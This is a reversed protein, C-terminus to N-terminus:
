AYASVDVLLHTDGYVSFCVYGDASLPALVSNPVTQGGAFNLNSADPVSTSASACPYVTVFGYGDKDKGEVVTVNMAVAGIGTSPLGSAVGKVTTAGAVKLRLVSVGSTSSSGFRGGSVRTDVLRKPSDLAIISFAPEITLSARYGSGSTTGLASISHSGSTVNTPITVPISIAGQANAQVTNLVQPTSQLTIVVWELPDFGSATLTFTQGPEPTDDPVQLTEPLADLVAASPPAFDDPDTAAVGVIKKIWDSGSFYLSGDTSFAMHGVYYYDGNVTMPSFQGDFSLKLINGDYYDSIYLNGGRDVTMGSVSFCISKAGGSNTPANDPYESCGAVTEAIIEQNGSQGSIKVIKCSDNYVCWYGRPAWYVTGDHGVALAGDGKVLGTDTSCNATGSLTTTVGAPTRKMVRCEGNPIYYANGRADYGVSEPDFPVQSNLEDTITGTSSVTRRAHVYDVGTGYNGYMEVGDGSGSRTVVTNAWGVNLLTETANQELEVSIDTVLSDDGAIGFNILYYDVLVDGLGSITSIVGASSVQRVINWQYEFPDTALVNTSKFYSFVLSNDSLVDILVPSGIKALTASAGDGSNGETGNGIYVVSSDSNVKTIKYVPNDSENEIDRETFYVSGDPAALVQQFERNTGATRFTEINGNPKIRRIKSNVGGTKQIFYINGSADVDIEGSVDINASTALSGDVGTSGQTGTGGVTSLLGTSTNIKRIKTGSFYSGERFYINGSADFALDNYSELLEKGSAVGDTPSVNGCDYDATERPRTVDVPVASGPVLKVIQCSDWQQSYLTGSQDIFGNSASIDSLAELDYNGLSIPGTATSKVVIGGSISYWFMEGSTNSGLYHPMAGRLDALTKGIPSIRKAVPIVDASQAGVDAATKVPGDGMPREIHTTLPKDVAAMTSTPTAIALGTVFLGLALWIKAEGTKRGAM